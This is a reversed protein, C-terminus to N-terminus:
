IKRQKEFHRSISDVLTKALKQRHSAKLLLTRDQKNNLNGVEVLVSIPVKSYRLVAPLTRVGRRYFYGRVAFSRHVKLNAAKFENIINEGFTKSLKASVRNSRRNYKIKEQYEKIRRYVRQTKRFEPVRLRYDPFYVTAGRLSKHLADGHVSILVINSAPVKDKIRLKRYISNILYVRMNNGINASRIKYLPNVLLIEDEDKTTSLSSVPKAQNPDNVTPHIVINQKKLYDSIRLCIDYVTEDEFIRKPGSIKFTAGPDRGGHGADLIVHLAGPIPKKAGPKEIEPLDAPPPEELSPQTQVVTQVLYDESIWEIPIKLVSGAHVFRADKIRNIEMLSNALENVDNVLTRGTFRVIVASYISEGKLLKYYAYPEKLKRKGIFLPSKVNFSRLNLEPKVWEWPIMIVDGINLSKGQNPLKNRTILQSAKIETKAFIGAILSVTEGYYLVRHAWGGEEQSDNSFLARLAIGQIRANLSNFPFRVYKGMRLPKGRNYQKIKNFNNKWNRMTWSAFRYIGDGKRPQLQVWIKRGSFKVKIKQNEGFKYERYSSTKAKTSGALPGSPFLLGTLCSIIAFCISAKKLGM